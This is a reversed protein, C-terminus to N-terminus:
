MEALDAIKQKEVPDDTKLRKSTIIKWLANLIALNFIQSIKLVGDSESIQKKLDEVLEIAEDKIMDEMSSRGFGFDKLHRM